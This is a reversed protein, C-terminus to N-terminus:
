AGGGSCSANLIRVTPGPTWEGELVIGSQFPPIGVENRHIQGVLADITKFGKRIAPQSIGAFKGRFETQLDLMAVGFKDPVQVDLEHLWDVIFSNVCVCADPRYKEMWEAFRRKGQPRPSEQPDELFLVPPAAADDELAAKYGAIYRHEFLADLWKDLVIGIKRYGLKRLQSCAEFGTWYHDNTVFNLPPVKSHQGTVVCPFRSWIPECVLLDMDNRAGYFYVGQINRAHLIKALREPSTDGEYLWFRDLNYGLSQARQESGENCEAVSSIKQDLSQFKSVNIAALTAVYRQKKSNRLEAMLRGVLANPEYGMEQAIKQIRERQAKFVRPDNRLALSVTSKAVGAKQAIAAMSPSPTMGDFQEISIVNGGRELPTFIMEDM